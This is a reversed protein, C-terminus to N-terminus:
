GETPRHSSVLERGLARGGAALRAQEHQEAGRGEADGRSEQERVRHALGRHLGQGVILRRDDGADVVAIADGEGLIRNLLADDDRLPLHGLAQDVGDDGGLVRLEVFWAARLSMM